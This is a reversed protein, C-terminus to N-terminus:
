RKKGTSQSPFNPNNLFKQFQSYIPLFKKKIKTIKKNRYLFNDGVEKISPLSLKTLVENGSLFNPGVQKLNPLNLEIIYRNEDLFCSGVQELRPLSLEMLAQNHYLFRDGVQELRPLSLETLKENYYLFRDRTQELRPLSLKTLTRNRYLFGNGVQELNPLNLETLAKNESLFYDGIETINSNEYSIINGLKDIKIIVPTGKDYNLKITRSGDERDRIVEINTIEQLGKIFNDIIYRDYLKIKKEKTDLIFNDLLIYREKEKHYTDVVQFNDIIINDECYYINNREINYKYIKGDSARVYGPIEFGQKSSEAINIGYTREFSRTLGSIINDLDNSFTADPNNVTHNYRNKISLTNNEGRTFQISIVSTGYEDQRQPHSFDERKIESVNDKVAFFVFCRNLRGGNFTCLEEEQRYYKRFTEIDEESQCEYLTYGAEKM